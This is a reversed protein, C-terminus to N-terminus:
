IQWLELVRWTLCAMDTPSDSGLLVLTPDRTPFLMQLHWTHFMFAVCMTGHQGEFLKLTPM